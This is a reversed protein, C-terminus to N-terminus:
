AGGSSSRRGTGARLGRSPLPTLREATMGAFAPMWHVAVAMLTGRRFVPDGAEALSVTKEDRSIHGRARTGKAILARQAAEPERPHEEGAHLEATGRHVGRPRHRIAQLRRVARRPFAQSVENVWVFGAEVAAATRHATVLDNTWISCTLGYEVANVQTSCRRSRREMQPDLARPRLDGGQRDAHGHDRRRVRDARRLLGQRSAPDARGSAAASWGRATRSAPSSTAWCATTSRRASSRAWPPRQSRDPHRAQLAQDVAKVRELVADYIWEHLFARSTSGCSQGCWTFNM